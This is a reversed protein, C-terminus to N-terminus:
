VVAEHPSFGSYCLCLARTLYQGNSPALAFRKFCVRLQDERGALGRDGLSRLTGGCGNRVATIPNASFDSLERRLGTRIDATWGNRVIYFNLLALEAQCLGDLLRCVGRWEATGFRPV